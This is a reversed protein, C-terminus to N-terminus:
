DRIKDVFLAGLVFGVGTWFVNSEFWPTPANCDSVEGRLSDRDKVCMQLAKKDEVVLQMAPKNFTYTTETVKFLDGKNLKGRKPTTAWSSTTSLLCITM